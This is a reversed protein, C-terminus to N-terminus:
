FLLKIGLNENFFFASKNTSFFENNTLLILDVLNNKENELINLSSNMYQFPKDISGDQPSNNNNLNSFFFSKLSQSSILLPIIYILLLLMM